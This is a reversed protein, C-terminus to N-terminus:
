QFRSIMPISDFGSLSDPLSTLVRRTGMNSKCPCKQSVTHTSLILDRAWYMYRYTYISDAKTTCAPSQYTERQNCTRLVRPRWCAAAAAGSRRTLLTLVCATGVM